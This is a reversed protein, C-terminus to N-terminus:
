TSEVISLKQRKCRDEGEQKVEQKLELPFDYDKSGSLVRLEDKANKTSARGDCEGGNGNELRVRYVHTIPATTPPCIASKLHLTWTCTLEGQSSCEFAQPLCGTLRIEDEDEGEKGEGTSKVVVSASEIAPPAMGGESEVFLRVSLQGRKQRKCVHGFLFTDERTYRPIPIGLEKMVLGMVTDTKAFLRLDCHEDKPTQQLNVL